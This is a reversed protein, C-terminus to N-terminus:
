VAMLAGAVLVVEGIAVGAFISRRLAIFGIFGAAVATLRVSIPVTALAGPPLVMIKAIVGALLATAVARVWILIEADETLGRSFVIGLWRWVENPLFGALILLLYPWIEALTM